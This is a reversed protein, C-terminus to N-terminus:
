HRTGFGSNKQFDLIKWDRLNSRSFSYKDESNVRWVGGNQVVIGGWLTYKENIAYDGWRQCKGANYAGIFSQLGKARSGANKATDGAKTDFIGIRNGQKVIFDPYFLSSVGDDNAYEVAFNDRGFDGNKFWWEIGGQKELFEIFKQENERGIYKKGIYFPDIACKESKLIEYEDTFAYEEHLSFILHERSKEVKSQEEKERIPKYTELAVAIVKRLVSTDGKELDNCVISYLPPNQINIMEKLWVNIATKLKSWSREPAYKKSEEEQQAIERYLM